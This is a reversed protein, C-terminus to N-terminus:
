IFQADFILLGFSFMSLGSNEILPRVDIEVLIFLRLNIDCFKLKKVGINNTREDVVIFIRNRHFREAYIFLRVLKGRKCTVIQGPPSNFDPETAM